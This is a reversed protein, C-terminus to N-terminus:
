FEHAFHHVMTFWGRYIICWKAINPGNQILLDM